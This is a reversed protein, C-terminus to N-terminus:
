NSALHGGNESVVEIIYKRIEDSLQYKKNYSLKKLDKTNNINDILKKM